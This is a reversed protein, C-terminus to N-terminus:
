NTGVLDGCEMVDNKEAYYECVAKVFVFNDKFMESKKKSGDFYKIVGNELIPLFEDLECVGNENVELLENAKNIIRNLANPYKDRMLIFDNLFNNIVLKDSLYGGTCLGMFRDMSMNKNQVEKFLEAMSEPFCMKSFFSIGEIDYEPGVSIKHTNKDVVVGMNRAVYDDDGLMDRRTFYRYAVEDKMQAIEKEIDFDPDLGFKKEVMKYHFRYVSEYLNVVDDVTRSSIVIERDPDIYNDYYEEISMMIENSKIVDVIAVFHQEVGPGKFVLNECYETPIDFANLMKSAFKESTISYSRGERNYYDVNKLDCYMLFAPIKKPVYGSELLSDVCSVYSSKKGSSKIDVLEDFCDSDILYPLKYRMGIGRFPQQSENEFDFQNYIPDEYNQSYDFYSDFEEAEVMNQDKDSEGFALKCLNVKSKTRDTSIKNRIYEKLDTVIM